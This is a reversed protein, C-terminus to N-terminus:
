RSPPPPCRALSRVALAGLLLEGCSTSSAPCAAFLLDSQAHIVLRLRYPQPAAARFSVYAVPLPRQGWRGNSRSATPVVAAVGHESRRGSGAAKRRRRARRPAPRRIR